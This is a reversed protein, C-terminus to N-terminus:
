KLLTEFGTFFQVLNWYLNLMKLLFPFGMGLCGKTGPNPNALLATGQHGSFIEWVRCGPSSGMIGSLNRWLPIM